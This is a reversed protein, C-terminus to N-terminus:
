IHLGSAEVNKFTRHEPGVSGCPSKQEGFIVDLFYYAHRKTDKLSKQLKNYIEVLTSAMLGGWLM